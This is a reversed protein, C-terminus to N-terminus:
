TDDFLVLPSIFNRAGFDYKAQMHFHRHECDPELQDSEFPVRMPIYGIAGINHDFHHKAIYKKATKWDYHCKLFINSRYIAFGNFASECEFLKEKDFNALQRQIEERMIYVVSYPDVFAWCNYIFPFFSLAWIDYYGERNFSITDWRDIWDEALYKQLVPLRIPTSCVNDLDLMIFHTWEAEDYEPTKMLERMKEIIWNRANAINETRYPTRPNPNIYIERKAYDKSQQIIKLLTLDDSRDYAILLHIDDFVTAIQKINEFVREIYEACDYATGCVFCKRPMIYLSSV